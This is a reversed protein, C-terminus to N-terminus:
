IAFALLLMTIGAVTGKMDMTVDAFSAGRGKEFSQHFEDLAAYCLSFLLSFPLALIIRLRIVKKYQFVLYFFAYAFFGLSAYLTMHALKRVNAELNGTGTIDPILGDM